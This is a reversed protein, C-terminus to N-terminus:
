ARYLCDVEVIAGRKPDILAQHWRDGLLDSLSVKGPACDGRVNRAPPFTYGSTTLYRGGRRVAIAGVSALGKRAVAADSTNLVGFRTVEGNPGFDVRDVTGLVDWRRAVPLTARTRPGSRTSTFVVLALVVGLGALGIIWKRAGSIM